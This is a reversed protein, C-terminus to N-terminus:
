EPAAGYFSATYPTADPVEPPEGDARPSSDDDPRDLAARDSRALLWGLTERDAAKQARLALLLKAIEPHEPEIAYADGLYTEAAASVEELDIRLREWNTRGDHPRPVSAPPAAGSRDLAVALSRAYGDARAALELLRARKDPYRGFHEAHLQLQRALRAERAYADALVERAGRPRPGALLDGLFTSALTGGSGRGSASRPTLPGLRSQGLRGARTSRSATHM